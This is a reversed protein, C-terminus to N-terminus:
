ENSIDSDQELDAPAETAETSAETEAVTTDEAPKNIKCITKDRKSYESHSELERSIFEDTAKDYKYKYTDVSYGMWGNYIVEGDVYGDENDEELVREVTEWQYEELIEYEMEVYYGKDDTGRLVISVYSDEAVAEIRIPYDTNNRFRFDLTGWNVTADMGLPLYDATFMHEERELIELDAYLACYYLTSAVQCIGGGVQEVTEGDAYAGAPQYGKEETREGLVENFSFSEGPKVVYNNIAECALVLNNTRPPDLYYITDASALEDKFIINELHERTIEPQLYTLSITVSDGPAAAKLLNAAARANFGYGWIEDTITYDDENLTADVPESCYQKQLEGLDVEEPEMIHFDLAIPEFNLQDYADLIQDYVADTDFGIGATGVVITLTQYVKNEDDETEPNVATPRKGEVQVSPQTLTGGSDALFQDLADAIYGNDMTMYSLLSIERRTTTANVMADLRNKRSGTRGYRYADSVLLDIDVQVKTDAATLELHDEPLSLIVSQSYLSELKQELASVADEPTMGGINLGAVYTNAMILGDDATAAFYFWLGICLCLILVAAVASISIVTIKRNRQVTASSSAPAVFAGGSSKRSSSGNGPSKKKQHASAKVERSPIVITESYYNSNRDRGDYEHEGNAAM